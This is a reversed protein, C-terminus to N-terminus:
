ERRDADLLRDLLGGAASRVMEYVRDFGDDGGFYPDPVDLDRERASSLAPDFSRLLHVRREPAGLDLLDMRNDRDMAVIWEFRDFDTGPDVQRAISPLDIGYKRAVALSRPDAPKGVHWHGTGASDVLFREREGRRGAEHLFLGEALPSRCINGLCVFLVGTQGERMSPAESM